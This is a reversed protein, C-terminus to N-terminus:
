PIVGWTMIVNLASHCGYNIRFGHSCKHFYKDNSLMDLDKQKEFIANFVINMASAVIEDYPFLVPLLRKGRIGSKSVMIRQVIKAQWSGKILENSLKIIRQLNRDDFTNFDGFKANSSKSKILDTYVM